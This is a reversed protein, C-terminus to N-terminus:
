KKCRYFYLFSKISLISIISMSITFLYFEFPNVYHLKSLSKNNDDLLERIKKNFVYNECDKKLSNHTTKIIYDSLSLYNNSPIQLPLPLPLPRFNNRVKFFMKNLM